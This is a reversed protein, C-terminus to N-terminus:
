GGSLNPFLQWPTWYHSFYSKARMQGLPGGYLYICLGYSIEYNPFIM